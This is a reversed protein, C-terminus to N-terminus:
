KNNQQNINMKKLIERGERVKRSDLVKKKGFGQKVGRLTAQPSPRLGREVLRGRELCEIIYM